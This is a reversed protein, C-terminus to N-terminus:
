WYNFTFRRIFDNCLASLQAEDADELQLIFRTGVDQFWGGSLAGSKRQEMPTFIDPASGNQNFQEFTRKVPILAEKAKTIRSEDLLSLAKWARASHGIMTFTLQQDNEPFDASAQWFSRADATNGTEYLLRGTVIFILEWPHHRHRMDSPDIANKLKHAISKKESDDAFVLVGKLTLHLTFAAKDPFNMCTEVCTEFGPFGDVKFIRIVEEKYAGQEKVDVACHARFSTQMINDQGLHKRARAFYEMATNYKEMFAYNQGISGCIKGYIENSVPADPGPSLLRTLAEEKTALNQLKQNAKKFAFSNSDFVSARNIFEHFRRIDKVTKGTERAFVRLGKEMHYLGKVTNATHNSLRLAADHYSFALEDLAPDDPNNATIKEMYSEVLSLLTEVDKLRQFLRDELFRVALAILTRCEDPDETKHLTGLAKRVGPLVLCENSYPNRPEQKLYATVVEGYRGQFYATLLSEPLDYDSPAYFLIRDPGFTHQMASHIKEPKSTKILIHFLTNCIWDAFVMFPNDWRSYSQIEYDIRRECRFRLANQLSDMISKLDAQTIAAFETLGQKPGKGDRLKLYGQAALYEEVRINYGFRRQALRLRLPSDEAFFPHYFFVAQLLHVLMNRYYQAGPANAGPDLRALDYIFAIRAGKLKENFINQLHNRIEQRQESEQIESLHIGTITASNHFYTDRVEELCKRIEQERAILESPVVLGGVLRPPSFPDVAQDPDHYDGFGGSEDVYFEFHGM